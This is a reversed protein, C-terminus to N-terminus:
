TKKSVRKQTYIYDYIMFLPLNKFCFFLLRQNDLSDHHISINLVNNRICFVKVRKSLLMQKLDRTDWTGQISWLSITAYKYIYSPFDSVSEGCNHVGDDPAPFLQGTSFFINELNLVIHLQGWRKMWPSFTINM